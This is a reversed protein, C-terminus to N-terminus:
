LRPRSSLIYLSQSQFHVGAEPLHTALRALAPWTEREYTEEKTGRKAVSHIDTTPPIHRVPVVYPLYNAGAWCSAYDISYDGPQDRAVVTISNKSNKSLEFATTLGIVGASNDM